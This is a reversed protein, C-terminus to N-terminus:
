YKKCKGYYNIKKIVFICINKLKELYFFGHIKFNEM